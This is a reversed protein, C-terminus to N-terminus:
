RRAAPTSWIRRIAGAAGLGALLALVALRAFPTRLAEVLYGAYPLEFAYRWGTGAAPVRWADALGNADGKTVLLRQAGRHEIRVIRHTVLENASGPRKFTVIDGVRLDAGRVRRVIVESGVPLTPTMSGSTIAYSRYPLVRPGVGLAVLLLTVLAAATSAVVAAARRARRLAVRPAGPPALLESGAGAPTSEVHYSAV